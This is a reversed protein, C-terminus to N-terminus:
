SNPNYGGEFKLHSPPFAQSIYFKVVIEMFPFPWLKTHWIFMVHQIIIWSNLHICKSYVSEVVTCSEWHCCWETQELKCWDNKLMFNWVSNEVQKKREKKLDSAPCLHYLLWSSSFPMSFRNFDRPFIFSFFSLFFSPSTTCFTLLTVAKWENSEGRM